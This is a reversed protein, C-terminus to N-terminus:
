NQGGNARSEYSLSHEKTQVLVRWEHLSGFGQEYEVWNRDFSLQEAVDPTRKVLVTWGGDDGSEMNCRAQMPPFNLGFPMSTNCSIDYIESELTKSVQAIQLNTSLM